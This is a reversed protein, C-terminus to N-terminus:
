KGRRLLGLGAGTLALGATAILSLSGFSLAEPGTPPHRPPKETAQPTNSPTPSPGETATATPEATDTPTPSPGETATETATPEPTDTPVPTDTPPVPTETPDPEDCEGLYDNEHGAEPSGGETFHGQPFGGENPPVELTVYQLTGEQGAAHCVTVKEVASVTVVSVLLLVALLALTGYLKHIKM